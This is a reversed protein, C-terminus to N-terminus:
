YASRMWGTNKDVLIKDVLSNNKTVVEAEFYLGKDTITGMKLNPNNLWKLYHEVMDGTEKKDLPRRPQQPPYPELYGYGPGLRSPGLGRGLLGPDMMGPGLRYRAPPGYSFAFGEQFLYRHLEKAEADSIQDASFPPM